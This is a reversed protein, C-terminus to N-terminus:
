MNILWFKIFVQSSFLSSLLSFYDSDRLNQITTLFVDKDLLFGQHKIIRFDIFDGLRDTGISEFSLSFFPWTKHVKTNRINDPMSQTKRTTLPWYAKISSIHHKIIESYM